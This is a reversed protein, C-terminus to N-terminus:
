DRSRRSLEGKMLPAKPRGITAGVNLISTRYFIYPHAHGARFAGEVFLPGKGSRRPHASSPM